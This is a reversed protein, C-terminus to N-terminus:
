MEGYGLESDDMFEDVEGGDDEPGFEDESCNSDEEEAEEEDDVDDVDSFQGRNYGYDEEEDDREARSRNPVAVTPEHQTQDDHYDEDDDEVQIVRKTDRSDRDQKFFDSAERTSAHGVGGGRFRMM